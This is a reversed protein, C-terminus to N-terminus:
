KFPWPFTGANSFIAVWCGIVIPLLPFIVSLLLVLLFIRAIIDGINARHHEREHEEVTKM